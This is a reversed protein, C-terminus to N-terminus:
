REDNWLTPEEEEGDVFNSVGVGALRYLSEPAFDFRTLLDLAIRSLDDGSSPPQDPTLRRTATSFERTRLKM